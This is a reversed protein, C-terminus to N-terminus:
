GGRRKTAERKLAAVRIKESTEPSVGKKGKNWPINGKMSLSIKTKRSESVPPLPREENKKKVGESIKRRHEESLPSRKKGSLALSVRPNKKGKALSSRGKLPSPKGKKSESIKSRTEESCETLYFEKGGRGRNIWKDNHVCNLRRLVKDEYLVAKEISSFSKRVQIIDPEGHLKRFEKVYESSSFYTVWLEDPHCADAFRVGYYWRNLKTWGILYTYPTRM